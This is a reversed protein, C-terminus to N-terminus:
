GQGEWTYRHNCYADGQMLTKDRTLKIAPNFAQAFAFDGHCTSAHGIDLANARRFPEVNLCETIRWEYVTETSEVVELTVLRALAPIDPNYYSKFASFTNGGTRAVAARAQRVNRSSQFDELTRLLPERGMRDSLFEAFELFRRIRTIETQRLTPTPDVPIDWRHPTQLGAPDPPACPLGSPTGLAACTMACTPVIGHLFARRDMQNVQTENM